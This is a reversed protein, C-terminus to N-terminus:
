APVLFIIIRSVFTKKETKKLNEDSPNAEKMQTQRVSDCQQQRKICRIFIKLYWMRSSQPM